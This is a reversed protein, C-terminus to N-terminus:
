DSEEGSAEGDAASDAASDPHRRDYDSRAARIAPTAREAWRVLAIFHAYVESGMATLTYEVRPPVDATVQRQVMGDRELVRLKLTLMRQSIEHEASVLAILRRLETHRLMGGSLLHMVLSSWRDGLYAPTTRVPDDRRNGHRAMNALLLAVSDLLRARDAQPRDSGIITAADEPTRNSAMADAAYRPARGAPM